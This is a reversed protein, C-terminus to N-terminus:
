LRSARILFQKGLCRWAWPQNLYLKVLAGNAPLRSRFSYPLFRDNVALVDFRASVLHEIVTLHSLPLLHDAFDWYDDGCYKINPWMIFLLGDPSLLRHSHRLFVQVEEPSHLHELLNSIWILDFRENLDTTQFRGQHFQVRPNLHASRARLDCGTLRIVHQACGNLFEGDGCAPDLVSSIPKGQRLTQADRLIWRTIERWTADKLQPSIGSFRYRYIRELDLNM